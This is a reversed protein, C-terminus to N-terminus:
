FKKSRWQGFMLTNSYKLVFSPILFRTQLLSNRHRRRWAELATFSWQLLKLIELIGDGSQGGSFENIFSVDGIYVCSHKLEQLHLFLSHPAHTTLHSLPTLFLLQFQLSGYSLHNTYFCWSNHTFM